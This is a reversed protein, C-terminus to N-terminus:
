GKHLVPRLLYLFGNHRNITRPRPTDILTFFLGSNPHCFCFSLTLRDSTLRAFSFVPLHPCYSVASVLHCGFISCSCPETTTHTSKLSRAFRRALSSGAAILNCCAHSQTQSAPVCQRLSLPKDNLKCIRIADCRHLHHSISRARAARRVPGHVPLQCARGRRSADAAPM